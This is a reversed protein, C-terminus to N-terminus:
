RQVEDFDDLNEDSNDKYFIYRLSYDVELDVSRSDYTLEIGPSVTTVWDEEEDEADLFLNDTYKEEVFIRPHIEIQAWSCTATLLIFLCVFVYHEM